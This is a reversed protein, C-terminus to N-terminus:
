AAGGAFQVSTVIRSHRRVPQRRKAPRRRPAPQRLCVYLFIACLGVLVGVAIGIAAALVAPPAAFLATLGAGSLFSIATTM